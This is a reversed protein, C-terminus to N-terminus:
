CGLPLPLAAHTHVTLPFLRISVPFHSILCAVLLEQAQEVQYALSPRSRTQYSQPSRETGGRGRIKPRRLEKNRTARRTARLFPFGHPRFGRRPLEQQVSILLCSGQMGPTLHFIETALSLRRSELHRPNHLTLLAADAAQSFLAM